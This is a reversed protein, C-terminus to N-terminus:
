NIFVIVPDNRCFRIAPIRTVTGKPSVIKISKLSPFHITSRTLAAGALYIWGRAASGSESKWIVVNRMPNDAVM